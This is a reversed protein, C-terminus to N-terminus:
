GLAFATRPESESMTQVSMMMVLTFYTFMAIRMSLSPSPPIRARIDSMVDPGNFRGKMTAQPSNPAASM